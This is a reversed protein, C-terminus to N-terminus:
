RGLDINVGQSLLAETRAQSYTRYDQTKYYGGSVYRFGEKFHFHFLLSDYRRVLEGDDFLLVGPRYVMDYEKALARPTTQDGYVDIIKEDSDADLRVVTFAKLEAQVDPRSLTADYLENCDYCSSDEFLIALPGDVSSLDSTPTFLENDRLAYVDQQLNKDLYDALSGQLYAKEAVFHLVQEFREPSRYGNVRVVTKNDGNLFLIAPTARVKLLGSLEKESVTIKENFVVERDGGVNIAITDFHEQIYSTLPEAQFSETLMRDCYPCGNLQFFLILHKDADNAEDADDQIELFSEKFWSPAIHTVGGKIEGKAEAATAVNSFLAICLSLSLYLAQYIRLRPLHTYLEAKM